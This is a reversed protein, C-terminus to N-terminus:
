FGIEESDRPFCHPLHLLTATLARVRDLDEYILRGLHVFAVRKLSRGNLFEIISEPTFHSLECVLLDVPLQLLPSLDEPRGLDASHIVRQGGTELLFCYSSFDSSYRRAFQGRTADLHSTLYPTIAVDSLMVPSQPTLPRLQLDFKLAEKFLFSAQLMAQVAPIAGAPLFVPLPKTRREIWCSQLFMFLGGFHDAHLHSIFIADILDYSHRARRLSSDVSEGCDVLVVRGGLRYLFAAHNRDPCPAGDGTGLCIVSNSM